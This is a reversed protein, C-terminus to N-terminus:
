LLCKIEHMIRENLPSWLCRFWIAFLKIIILFPSKFSTLCFLGQFEILLLKIKRDCWWGLHITLVARIFLVLVRQLAQLTLIFKFNSWRCTKPRKLKSSNIQIWLLSDPNRLSFAAESKFYNHHYYRKLCSFRLGFSVFSNIGKM